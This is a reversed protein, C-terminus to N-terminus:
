SLTPPRRRRLPAHARATTMFLALAKDLDGFSRARPIGPGVVTWPRQLRRSLGGARAEVNRAISVTAVSLPEGNAQRWHVAVRESSHSVHWGLLRLEDVVGALADPASPQSHPPAAAPAPPDEEEIEEVIAVQALLFVRIANSSVDRARLVRDTAAIPVVRYTRERGDDRYVITVPTGAM